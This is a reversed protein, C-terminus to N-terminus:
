GNIDPGPSLVCREVSSMEKGSPEELWWSLYIWLAVCIFWIDSYSPQFQTDSSGHRQSQFAPSWLEPLVMCSVKLVGLHPMVTVAKGGVSVSPTLTGKSEALVSETNEQM